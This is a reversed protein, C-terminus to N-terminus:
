VMGGREGGCLVVAIRRWPRPRPACVKPGSRTEVGKGKGEEDEDNGEESDEVVVWEWVAFWGGSGDGDVGM